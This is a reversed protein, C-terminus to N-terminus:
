RGLDEEVFPLLDMIGALYAESGGPFREFKRTEEFNELVSRGREDQHLGLLLKVLATRVDPDLSRRVCVLNRPVAGTTHIIRLDGIRSGATEEFYDENVAGAVVKRKLVWFMTNETDNSFVYGVRDGPISAAADQYNVLKLGASALAAKPMLYSSTSFPAGFAIIKGTLDELSEVDSDARTFIVSRYADAGRKWRLLVVDLDARKWVFGVPFPSDIFVDVTGQDLEEVMKSLSDVVVVRGRGIGVDGLQSAVHNAFPRFVEFESAPTLSVSGFTLVGTAASTPQGIPTKEDGTPGGCAIVAMLSVGLIPRALRRGRIM